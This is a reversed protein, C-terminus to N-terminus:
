NDGDVTFTKQLQQDVQKFVSQWNGLAPQRLLQMSSYWPSDDRNLLWRWDANNSLLLWVPKGMAGALHTVSTDVGIIVDMLECLCATDAFDQLQEGFHQVNNFSALIAADADRVEKQLSFFHVANNLTHSFESLAISRNHDNKQTSNGSWVLGIRPLTKEGLKAQWKKLREAHSFLYPTNAPISALTTHFALPLSMLPCHYDFDPLAEGNNLLVDVGQLSQLLANLAHPVQLLVTAGLAKVQSTYRCFQLTDGFGQEAHLLITKGRLSQEGLWLPQKFTRYSKRMQETQWRAEHNRWGNAYDGLLLQCLCKNWYADIYNPKVSVARDYSILAEDYRKLEMLVLGRNSLADAFDPKLQLAHDYSALAEDYRKLEKLANGRNALANAYEPKITLARDYSALADDYRKLEFLVIGRNSLAEAFNANLSLTRDYSSLAEDYRKLDKLVNGRNNLAEVFDPRITLAREYSALADEYRKLAHFVLGRNAHADSHKPNIRIANSILKIALALQGRQYVIVGLLHLADAHEPQTQLIEKYLAEAHQLQGRQHLGLAQKFKAALEAILTPTSSKKHM